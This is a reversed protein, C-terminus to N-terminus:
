SGRGKRDVEEEKGMEGHGAMRYGNEKGVETRCTTKGTAEERRSRHSYPHCPPGADGVCEADVVCVLGVVYIISSTM